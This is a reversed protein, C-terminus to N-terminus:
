TTPFTTTFGAQVYFFSVSKLAKDNFVNIFSSVSKLAKDNFVNIFSVVM